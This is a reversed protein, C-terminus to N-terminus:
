QLDGSSAMVELVPYPVSYSHRNGQALGAEYAQLLKMNEIQVALLEKELDRIIVLLHKVGLARLQKDTM